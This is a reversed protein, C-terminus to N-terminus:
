REGELLDEIAKLIAERDSGNKLWQPLRSALSGRRRPQRQRLGAAVYDRLFVLHRRNYAWLLEDRFRRQLWVPLRFWPDVPDGIALARTVHVLTEAGCPCARVVEGRKTLNRISRRGLWRGCRPCRQKETRSSLDGPTSTWGRREFGCSACSVRPEGGECAVRAVQGCTPCRVLVEDLFSLLSEGQDDFREMPM